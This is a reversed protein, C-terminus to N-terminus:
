TEQESFKSQTGSSATGTHKETATFEAKKKKAM